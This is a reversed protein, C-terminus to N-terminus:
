EFNIMNYLSPILALVGKSKNLTTFQFDLTFEMPRINKSCVEANSLVIDVIDVYM